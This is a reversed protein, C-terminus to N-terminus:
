LPPEDPVVSPREAPAPLVLVPLALEYAARTGRPAGPVGTEPLASIIQIDNAGSALETVIRFRELGDQPASRRIEGVLRPRGARVFVSLTEGSRLWASGTLVYRGAPRTWATLHADSRAWAVLRGDRLESRSVGEGEGVQIRARAALRPFASLCEFYFLRNSGDLQPDALGSRFSRVFLESNTNQEEFPPDANMTARMTPWALVNLVVLATLALPVGRSRSDGRRGALAELVWLAGFTVLAQYPLPYYWLRSGPWAVPPHREVMMAVMTVQAAAAAFACGAVIAVRRPSRRERWAWFACGALAALALLLTPLGGLLVSTWTGLVDIAQVWPESVLLRTPHLRQFRMSPWYGNLSHVLWPGLVRFYVLWVACAAVAGALLALGRRKRLWAVGLVLALAM